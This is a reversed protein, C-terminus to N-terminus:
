LYICSSPWPHQYKALLRPWILKSFLNKFILLPPWWIRGIHLTFNIEYLLSHIHLWPAGLCLDWFAYIHIHVHLSCTLTPSLNPLLGHLFTYNWSWLICTPKSCWYKFMKLFITLMIKNRHHITKHKKALIIWNDVCPIEM